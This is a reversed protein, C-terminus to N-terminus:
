VPCWSADELRRTIFLHGWWDTQEHRAFFIVNFRYKSELKKWVNENIQMPIYINTFFSTPFADVENNIFFKHQPSLYFILYGGIDYNNFITGTLGSRKYFEAANNVGPALGFYPNKNSDFNILVSALIGLLLFSCLVKEKLSASWKQMLQEWAYCSLPIFFYGYPTIFRIKEIAALSFLFILILFSLHKKIGDKKVLVVWPFILIPLTILFYPYLLDHFRQLMFFVNQDESISVGLGKLANFPALAGSVGSPNILCAGLLLGITGKLDHAEEKNLNIKAQLWFTAILVPGLGFFIHTNVWIIQILSLWINLHIAKLRKLQYLNALWLFLACFFMSVGEPRIESRCAILPFALLGFVCAVSFSSLHKAEKFFLWFTLLILAVYALSLGVFDFVHWIVFCIVGFFWHHNIFPYNPHTYTYFNKYLIDWNGQFLLEGNKIYRGLDAGTFKIPTAVHWVLWLSLLGIALWKKM